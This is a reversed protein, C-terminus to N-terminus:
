LILRAAAAGMAAPFGLVVTQMLLEGLALGTAAVSAGYCTCACWSLSRTRSSRLACSSAGCRFSLTCRLRDAFSWRTCSPVAPLRLPQMYFGLAWMEMTMLLPLGFTLAGGFARALSVLFPRKFM